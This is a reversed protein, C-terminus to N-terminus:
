EEEWLVMERMGAADAARTAEEGRLDLYAFRMALDPDIVKLKQYTKTVMGYNELEHNCRSVGLLAAKNNTDVNLVRQYYESASEFDAKIFFINGMNILAPKYETKQVIEKFTESARDYLGYRAYLVALRNKYRSNNNSQQMQTQIQAAQPYIERDVYSTISKEFAATVRGRDPPQIAAGENFGVAQYIQWSERTPYLKAQEKSTNERWEKAGTQWAKEFSDQFM